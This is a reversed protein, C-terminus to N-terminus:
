PLGLQKKMEAKAIEWIFGIGVSAVSKARDKTNRWIAPDRITDLFEHGNWTMRMVMVDRGDHSSADLVDIMGAEALMFLHEVVETRAHGPAEVKVVHGSGDDNKEIELLLDRILDMDRKM